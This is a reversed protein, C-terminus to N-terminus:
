EVKDCAAKSEEAQQAARLSAGWHGYFLSLLPACLGMGTVILELCNLANVTQHGVHARFGRHALMMELTVYVLLSTALVALTPKVPKVAPFGTFTLSLLILAFVITVFDATQHHSITTWFGMVVGILLVGFLWIGLRSPKRRGSNTNM